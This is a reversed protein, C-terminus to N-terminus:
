KFLKNNDDTFKDTISSKENKGNKDFIGRKIKNVM